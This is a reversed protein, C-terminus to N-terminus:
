YMNLLTHFVFQQLIIMIIWLLCQLNNVLEDEDDADETKEKKTLVIMKNWQPDGNCGEGPKRINFDAKARKVDEQAKWEDLTMVKEDDKASSAAADGAPQRCRCLWHRLCVFHTTRICEGDPFHM